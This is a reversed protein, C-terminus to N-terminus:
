SEGLWSWLATGDASISVACCKWTIQRLLLVASAATVAVTASLSSRRETGLLDSGSRATGVGHEALAYYVSDALESRAAQEGEIASEGPLGARLRVESANRRGCVMMQDSLFSKLSSRPVCGGGCGGFTTVQLQDSSFAGSNRAPAPLVGCEAELGFLAQSSAEPM